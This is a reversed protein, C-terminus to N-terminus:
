RLTVGLSETVQERIRNQYELVLSRFRGPDNLETDPPQYTIKFTKSHCQRKPHFFADYCTLDVILDGATERCIQYFDNGRIWTEGDMQETPIWFSIDQSIPDLLSYPQFKVIRGSQFQDLFKADRSWFFRIDPIGFLIMALRELGLGFAWARTTSDHGCNILIQQQVVGCGLVELWEGNFEIEVEFSPDTFPFYDDNFRYRCDPFLRDIVRVISSKLEQVPDQGPEVLSLGEMQHFVPYHSRNIEDKRYVDGTVLFSRHGKKLLEAQHASTHTRLVQKDNIYYTDSKSRAPHDPPILLHDFNSEVTVVPSLGDFREFGDFSQYILRKIIEVPHNKLNHLDRGLKDLIKPSHQLTSADNKSALFSAEIKEFLEKAM